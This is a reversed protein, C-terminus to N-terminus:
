EGTEPDARFELMGRDRMKSIQQRFISLWEVSSEQFMNKLRGASTIRGADILVAHGCLPVAEMPDHTVLVLTLHQQEALQAIEDLLRSKTGLDLGAFPEDLLLFSPRVAIARALAVRQQQGGSLSGPQRRALDQIGCIRLAEDARSRAEQRPLRSGSLGLIVNEVASLNPWLALDQFVLALGRHHPPVVIHGPRSAIDGDILVQGSTPAELGALLRLLTSKGGGSPGVIATHEGSRLTLTVDSLAHHGGYTKGVGLLQFETVKM